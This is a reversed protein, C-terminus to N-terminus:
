QFIEMFTANIMYIQFRLCFPSKYPIKKKQIM